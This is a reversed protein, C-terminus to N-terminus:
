GQSPEQDDTAALRMAAATELGPARRIWELLAALEAHRARVAADHGLHQGLVTAGSLWLALLDDCHQLSDLIDHESLSELKRWDAQKSRGHRRKLLGLRLSRGLDAEGHARQQSEDEWPHGVAREPQLKHAAASEDALHELLVALLHATISQMCRASPPAHMRAHMGM